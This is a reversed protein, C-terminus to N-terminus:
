LSPSYPIPQVASYENLKARIELVKRWQKDEGDDRSNSLSWWDRSYFAKKPHNSSHDAVAREELESELHLLEAQLYLLNQMNLKSFRRLIGLESESGMLQAM